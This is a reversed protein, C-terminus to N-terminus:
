FVHYRFLDIINPQSSVRLLELYANNMSQRAKYSVGRCPQSQFLIHLDEKLMWLQKENMKNIQQKEKINTYSEVTIWLFAADNNNIISEVYIPTIAHITVTHKLNRKEM